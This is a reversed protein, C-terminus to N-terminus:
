KNRRKCDEVYEKASINGNELALKFDECYDGNPLHHKKIMARTYYADAYNPKVEIAKDLMKIAMDYDKMYDYCCAKLYLAEYFNDWYSLAKDLKKMAKEPNGNYLVVKANDVLDFAKEKNPGCSTISIIIVVLSLIYLKRM